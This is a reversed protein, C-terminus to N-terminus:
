SAELPIRRNLSLPIKNPDFGQTHQILRYRDRARAVENEGGEQWQSVSLWGEIGLECHQSCLWHAIGYASQAPTLWTM